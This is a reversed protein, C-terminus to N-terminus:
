GHVPEEDPTAAAPSARSAMGHGVDHYVFGAARMAVPDFINRPDVILRGRMAAALREPAIEAVTVHVDLQAFCAASVLGVYGGGINAINM